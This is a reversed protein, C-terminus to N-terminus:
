ATQEEFSKVIGRSALEAWQEPGYCCHLGSAYRDSQWMLSEQWVHVKRVRLGRDEGAAPILTRTGFGDYCEPATTYRIPM